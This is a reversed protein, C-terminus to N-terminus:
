SHISQISQVLHVVVLWRRAPLLIMASVLLTLLSIALGMEMQSVVPMTVDQSRTLSLTVEAALRTHIPSIIYHGRPLGLLTANGNADLAVTRQGGGVLSLEVKSPIGGGILPNRAHISLSYMRLKIQWGGSAHPIYSNDGRNTVSVGEFQASAVSYRRIPELGVLVARSPAPTHLWMPAFPTTLAITTGEPGGLTVGSLRSTDM